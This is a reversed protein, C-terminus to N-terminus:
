DPPQWSREEVAQASGKPPHLVLMKRRRKANYMRYQVRTVTCYTWRGFWSPVTHVVLIQYFGTQPSDLHSLWSSPIRGVVCPKLIRCNGKRTVTTTTGPPRRQIAKSCHQMPYEARSFNRGPEELLSDTATEQDICCLFAEFGGFQGKIPFM